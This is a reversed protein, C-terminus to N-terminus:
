NVETIRLGMSQWRALVYEQFGPCPASECIPALEKGAQSLLVTGIVLNNNETQQFEIVFPKAYFLVLLKQPLRMRQYGGVPQFSILGIEELHILSNFYVGSATYIEDTHNYILPALDGIQWVFSCLKRFLEADVKDLSSILNV